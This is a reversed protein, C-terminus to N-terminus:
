AKNVKKFNVRRLVVLAVLYFGLLLGLSGAGTESSPEEDNDGETDDGDDGDVVGDGGEDGEDPLSGGPATPPDDEVILLTIEPVLFSANEESKISATLTTERGTYEENDIVPILVTKEVDGPEFTLVKEINGTRYGDGVVNLILSETTDDGDSRLIKLEISGVNESYSESQSFLSFTGRSLGPSPATDNDVITVVQSSPSVSVGLYNSALISLSEENEVKSDDITQITLTKQLEGDAFNLQWTGAVFDLPSVAPSDSSGNVADIIVFTSGASGNVRDVTVTIDDGEYVSSTVTVVFEGVSGKVGDDVSLVASDLGLDAAYPFMLGLNFSESGEGIDDDNIAFLATKETEGSEFTVRVRTNGFDDTANEDTILVDVTSMLDVNGQRTVTVYAHGDLEGAVFNSESFGITSNVEDVSRRSSVVPAVSRIVRANDAGGIEGCYSNGELRYPDSFFLHNDTSATSWMVTRGNCNYARADSEVYTSSSLEESSEHHAGLNHGIEHAAVYEFLARTDADYTVPDFVISLEGKYSALGVVDDLEDDERWDRVYMVLDPQFQQIMEYEYARTVSNFIADQILSSAGFEFSGETEIDNWPLEDNTTMTQSIEANVLNVSYGVGSDLLSQNIADVWTLTRNIANVYGLQHVYAPQYFVILDIIGSADSTSSIHLEPQDSISAIEENPHSILLDSNNDAAIVSTSLLLLGLYHIHRM